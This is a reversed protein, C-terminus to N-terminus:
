VANAVCSNEAESLALSFMDPSLLNTKSLWYLGMPMYCLGCTLVATFTFPLIFTIRRNIQRRIYRFVVELTARASRLFGVPWCMGAM